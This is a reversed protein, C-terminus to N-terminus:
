YLYTIRVLDGASIFGDLSLGTWDVLTGTVIFDTGYNQSTGHIFDFSVETPSSPLQTLVLGKATIEGASITRYETKSLFGTTSGAETLDLNGTFPNFKYSV